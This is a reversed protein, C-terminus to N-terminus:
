VTHRCICAGFAADTQQQPLAPVIANFVNFNPQPKPRAGDPNHPRTLPYITQFLELEVPSVGHAVQERVLRL